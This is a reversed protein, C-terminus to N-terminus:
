EGLEKLFQTIDQYTQEIRQSDQSALAAEWVSILEAIQERYQARSQEYIRELKAMLLRNHQQDRPHVKLKQMKEKLQAKEKDSLMSSSQEFTQSITHQTQEVTIDVDLLGSIDYTFRVRVMKDDINDSKPLPVDIEGLKINNKVYRSEGQYITMLLRKQAKHIPYFVQEKSCPLVTNREIIPTFYNGVKGDSDHENHTGTGLSFASVDTLVVDDLAENKDVLGAQIGAGMAVVLDPDLQTTPFCKLAKILCQKYINMRSAGGVMVIHDIDSPSLGADNFAREIPTLLRNLLPQCIERIKEENLEYRLTQEALEIEFHPQKEGSLRCKCEDILRTLNQQQHENLQQPQLRHQRLFDSILLGTFDEGGLHNDGASAKVEMVRDFYELITVDFTGGGLDLILYHTDDEQSQLGYALAAATPENILRLVELGALEAALKTAKRQYDNFYAPVSIVAQTVPQRLTAEADAKLSKLVLSSLEAASYHQKGLTVTRQTGMYRKFLATTHLPHSILREKAAKGVLVEGSNDVGVVSPTLAEGLSNAILVSQEGDWYSIASNTTGLDIGVTIMVVEQTQLDLAYHIQKPYTLLDSCYNKRKNEKHAITSSFIHWARSRRAQAGALNLHM